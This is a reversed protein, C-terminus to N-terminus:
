AKLLKLRIQALALAQAEVSALALAMLAVMLALAMLDVVFSVMLAVSFVRAFAMMLTVM